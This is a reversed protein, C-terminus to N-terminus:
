VTLRAGRSSARSVKPIGHAPSGHAGAGTKAGVSDIGAIYVRLTEAAGGANRRANPGVIQLSACDSFYDVGM